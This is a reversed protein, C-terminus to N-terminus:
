AEPASTKLFKAFLKEFISSFKQITPGGTLAAFITAIGVRGGLLWGLVLTVVDLAVKVINLPKNTKKTLFLTLATWPDLGFDAAIFISIGVFLMFCGLVFSFVQWYVVDVPIKLAAFLNFGLQIFSGMPLAYIFTGFSIYERAIFFIILLLTYNVVNTAVGLDDFGILRAILARAGDFFVSIPDNGMLASANFAIAFGIFAVGVLCMLGKKLFISLPVGFVSNKNAM